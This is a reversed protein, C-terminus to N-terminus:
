GCFIGWRNAGCGCWWGGTPALADELVEVNDLIVEQFDNLDLKKLETAM